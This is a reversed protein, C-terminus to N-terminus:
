KETTTNDKLANTVTALTLQEALYRTESEDFAKQALRESSVMNDSPRLITLYPLERQTRDWSPNNQVFAKGQEDLIIMAPVRYGSDLIHGAYVGVTGVPYGRYEELLVIRELYSFPKM